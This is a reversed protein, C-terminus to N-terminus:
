EELHYRGCSDACNGVPTCSAKAMHAAYEVFGVVIGSASRKTLWLAADPPAFVAVLRHRRTVGARIRLFSALLAILAFSLILRREFRRDDGSREVWKQLRM